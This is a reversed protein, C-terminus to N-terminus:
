NNPTGINIWAEIRAIDCTSMQGSPPMNRSGGTKYQIANLLKSNPVVAKIDNYSELLIGGSVNSSIHCGQGTCNKTIIPKVHTAFSTNATDCAFNPDTPYLKDAKDYYCATLFLTVVAIVPIIKIMKPEM